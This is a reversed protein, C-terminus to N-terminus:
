IGPPIKCLDPDPLYHNAGQSNDNLGFAVYIAGFFRPTCGSPLPLVSRGGEWAGGPGSKLWCLFCLKAAAVNDPKEPFRIYAYFVTYSGRKTAWRCYRVLQRKERYDRTPGNNGIKMEIPFVDLVVIDIGPRFLNAVTQWISCNAPPTRWNEGCGTVGQFFKVGPVVSNFMGSPGGRCFVWALALHLDAERVFANLGMKALAAVLAQTAPERVLNVAWSALARYLKKVTKNKVCAYVVSAISNLISQIGSVTMCEGLSWMGSPDIRNLPDGMTYLYRHLTRTDQPDFDARDPTLFRGLVPHYWRARLFVLGTYPDQREGAYGHGEPIGGATVVGWADYAATDLVNGAADTTAIVSDKLAAWAYTTVAAGHASQLGAPGFVYAEPDEGGATSYTLACQDVGKPTIPLPLCRRTGMADTRSLLHGELDYGYTVTGGGPPTYSILRDLDDYVLTTTGAPGDIGTLGGRLDYTYTTTGSPGTEGLLRDDADYTFTTTGAATTVSTLNGAADYTRTKEELATM